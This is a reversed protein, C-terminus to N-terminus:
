RWITRPEVGYGNWEYNPNWHATNNHNYQMPNYSESSPHPCNFQMMSVHDYGWAHYIEHDRVTCGPMAWSHVRDREVIIADHGAFYKGKIHGELFDVYYIPVERLGRDGGVWVWEDPSGMPLLLLLFFLIPTM